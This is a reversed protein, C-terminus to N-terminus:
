CRSASSASWGEGRANGILPGMKLNHFMWPLMDGGSGATEDILMAKPGQISATPSKMDDGYRMAWNSIAPRRLIDIYYDAFQGGGNFREDVIVADKAGAPLLVTQFYDHGQNGTDPVYVYAIRGGSLSDVKKL